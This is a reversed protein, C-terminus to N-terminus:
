VRQPRCHTTFVQYIPSFFVHIMKDPTFGIPKVFAQNGDVYEVRIGYVSETLVFDLKAEIIPVSYVFEIKRSSINLM